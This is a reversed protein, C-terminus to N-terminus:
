GALLRAERSARYAPPVPQALYDMTMEDGSRISHGTRMVYGDDDIVVNPQASHNIFGYSTRIARVLLREPTLANWELADIIAPHRTIDVVQGDLRCLIEGQAFARQAFLGRGHIPSPGVVTDPITAICPAGDLLAVAVLDIEAVPM